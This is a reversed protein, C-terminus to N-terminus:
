FYLLAVVCVVLTFGISILLWNFRSVSPASYARKQFSSQPEIDAQGTAIHVSTPETDIDQSPTKTVAQERPNLLQIRNLSGIFIGRPTPMGIGVLEGAAIMSQIGGYVVGEQETADCFVVVAAPALYPRLRRFAASALESSDDFIILDYQRDPTFDLSSQSVLTIFETLGYQAIHSKTTAWPDINSELTTLHGFGNECLGRAVACASLGLWARTELVEKPKIMRTLAYLFDLTEVEPTVTDFMSWLRAPKGSVDHETKEAVAVRDAFVVSHRTIKPQARQADMRQQWGEVGLWPKSAYNAAYYDPHAEFEATEHGLNRVYYRDSWACWYGAAKIDASLKGDAPFKYALGDLNTVRVGKEFIISARIAASTTLNYKAEYLVLGAKFRLTSPKPGWAELDTPVDAFFSLQGLDDFTEFSRRLHESWGPLFLQDNETLHVYEGHVISFAENYGLGGINEELFLVRAQGSAEVGRLYERSGDTSANDVVVLEYAGTITTLYSEITVRLSDARNWNLIITSIMNQQHMQAESANLQAM